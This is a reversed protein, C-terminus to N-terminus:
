LCRMVRRAHLLPTEGSQFVRRSAADLTPRAATPLPAPCEKTAHVKPVAFLATTDWVLTRKAPKAVEPGGVRPETAGLCGAITLGITGVSLLLKIKM